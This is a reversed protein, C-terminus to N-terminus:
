ALDEVAPEQREFVNHSQTTTSEVAETEGYYGGMTSVSQGEGKDSTPGSLSSATPRISQELTPAMVDGNGGGKGGSYHPTYAPSTKSASVKSSSPAYKGAKPTPIHSHGKGSKSLWSPSKSYMKFSSPGKYSGKGKGNKSSSKHSNPGSKHSSGKSIRKSSGSIKKSGGKSSGSSRKSSGKSSSGSGLKSSSKSVNGKGKGKGNGKSGFPQKTKKEITPYIEPCSTPYNTSVHTPYMAHLLSASGSGASTTSVKNM